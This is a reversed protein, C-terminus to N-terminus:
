QQRDKTEAEKFHIVLGNCCRWLARVTKATSPNKLVKKSQGTGECIPIITERIYVSNLFASLVCPLFSPLLSHLNSALFCPLWSPLFFSAKNTFLLIQFLLNKSALLSPLPLFSSPLAADEATVAVANPPLRHARGGVGSWSKSKYPPMSLLKLLLVAVLFVIILISLPVYHFRVATPDEAAVVALYLM